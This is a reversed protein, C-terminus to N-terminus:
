CCCRTSRRYKTKPKTKTLLDTQGDDDSRNAMMYEDPRM